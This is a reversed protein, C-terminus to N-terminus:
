AATCGNALKDQGCPLTIDHPDEVDVEPLAEKGCLDERFRHLECGEDFEIMFFKGSDHSQEFQFMVALLVRRPTQQRHVIQLQNANSAAITAAQQYGGVFAAFM